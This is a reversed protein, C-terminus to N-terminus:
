RLAESRALLEGLGYNVSTLGFDPEKSFPQRVYRSPRAQGNEVGGPVLALIYQEPANITTLIENRTITM